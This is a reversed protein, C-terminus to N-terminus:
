NNVILVLYDDKLESEEIRRVMFRHGWVATVRGADCTRSTSHWILVADGRKM